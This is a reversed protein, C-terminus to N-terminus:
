PLFNDTEEILVSDIAEVMKMKLIGIIFADQFPNELSSIVESGNYM